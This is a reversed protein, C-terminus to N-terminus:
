SPKTFTLTVYLTQFTGTPLNAFGSFDATLLGTSSMTVPVSPVVVSAGGPPSCQPNLILNTHIDYVAAALTYGAYFQAANGLQPLQVSVSRLAIGLDSPQSFSVNMAFFSNCTSGISELNGFTAFAGEFFFSTPTNPLSVVTLIYGGGFAPLVLTGSAPIGAMTSTDTAPPPTFTVPPTTVASGGGGGGGGVGGGCGALCASLLLAVSFTPLSKMTTVLM